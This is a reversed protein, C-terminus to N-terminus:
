PFLNKTSFLLHTTDPKKPGSNRVSTYCRWLLRSCQNLGQPQRSANRTSSTPASAFAFSKSPRRPTVATNGIAYALRFLTDDEIPAALVFLLTDMFEVAPTDRRTLTTTYNMFANSLSVQAPQSFSTFQAALTAFVTDIDLSEFVDSTYNKWVNSLLIDLNLIAFDDIPANVIRTIVAIL